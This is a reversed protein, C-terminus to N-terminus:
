KQKVTDHIIRLFQMSWSGEVNYLWLSKQESRGKVATFQIYQSRLNGRRKVLSCNRSSALIWVLDSAALVHPRKKPTASMVQSTCPEM